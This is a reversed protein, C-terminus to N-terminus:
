VKEASLRHGHEDPHVAGLSSSLGLSRGDADGADAVGRRQEGATRVQRHVSHAIVAFVLMSGVYGQWTMPHRFIYNSLAISLMQRTTMIVTFAIPGFQKITYFIAFQGTTSTIATVVNYYLADPNNSLFELVQPLEGSLVLVASSIMISSVNVGFMMQFHDIKGYERYIRSQWQSTFSDALVYVCLLGFGVVELGGGTSEWNSKSLSFITVGVTILLAEAYEATSYRSGKLLGGMLMVPLVKTSKFITQLSFSVFRLAQYQGWSSITNSLACPTFSLLPAASIVTGHYFWCAIASVIIALFRNSFVCFTASPFKGSPNLPTSNFTTDMILEQMMGWVLYSTQLATFCFIFDLITWVLIPKNVVEGGETSDLLSVSEEVNELERPTKNM